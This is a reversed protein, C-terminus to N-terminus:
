SFVKTGVKTFKLMDPGFMSLPRYFVGGHSNQRQRVADTLDVLTTEPLYIASANTALLQSTRDANFESARNFFGVGVKPSNCDHLGRVLRERAGYSKVEISLIAPPTLAQAVIQIDANGETGTQVAGTLNEFKLAERVLAENLSGARSMLSNSRAKSFQAYPGLLFSVLAEKAISQGGHVDLEDDIFRALLPGMVEDVLRSCVENARALNASSIPEGMRDAVIAMTAAANPLYGCTRAIFGPCRCLLADLAEKAAPKLDPLIDLPRENAISAEVFRKAEAGRTRSRVSQGFGLAEGAEADSMELIALPPNPLMHDGPNM